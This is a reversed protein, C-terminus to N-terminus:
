ALVVPIASPRRPNGSVPLRDVPTPPGNRVAKARAVASSPNGSRAGDAGSDNREELTSFRAPAGAGRLARVTGSASRHVGKPRLEVDLAQTLSLVFAKGAAYSGNFREPMLAVVSAINIIAGAGKAAFTNAAAVTLAHLVDVNLHVMRGLADESADLVNGSPGIGASNVRLEINEDERIRKLLIGLDSHKSLDLPLPTVAVAYSETLHNAANRLRELDRAVMILDYGRTALRDAYVSGIGSSAGTVIAM